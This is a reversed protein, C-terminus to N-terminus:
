FRCVRARMCVHVLPSVPFDRAFCFARSVFRFQCRAYAHAYCRRWSLGASVGIYNDLKARLRFTYSRFNHKAFVADYAKLEGRDVLAKLEDAPTDGLLSQAQEGFASVYVGGTADTVLFSLVYTARPRDIPQGCGACVQWGGSEANPLAKKM